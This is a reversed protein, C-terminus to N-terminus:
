EEKKKEKKQREKKKQFLAWQNALRFIVTYVQSSQFESIKRGEEAHQNSKKFSAVVWFKPWVDQKYETLM